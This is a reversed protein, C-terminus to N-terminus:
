QYIVQHVSKQVGAWPFRDEDRQHFNSVLTTGHHVEETPLPGRVDDEGQMESSRLLFGTEVPLNMTYM